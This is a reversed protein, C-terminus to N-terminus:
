HYQSMPASYSHMSAELDQGKQNYMGGSEESDTAYMKNGKKKGDDLSKTMFEHTAQSSTMTWNGCSCAAEAGTHSHGYTSDGGSAGYNGTITEATITKYTDKAHNQKDAKKIEDIISEQEESLGKKEAHVKIDVDEGRKEHEKRHQEMAIRLAHEGVAEGGLNDELSVHSSQSKHKPHPHEDHFTFQIMPIFSSHANILSERRRIAGSTRM